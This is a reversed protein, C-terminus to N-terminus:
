FVTVGPALQQVLKIRSELETAEAQIRRQIELLRMECETKYKVSGSHEGIAGQLQHLVVQRDLSLQKIRDDLSKLEDQLTSVVTSKAEASFQAADREEKAADFETKAFDISRKLSGIGRAVQEARSADDPRGACKSLIEHRMQPNLPGLTATVSTMNMTDVSTSFNPPPVHLQYPSNTNIQNNYMSSTSPNYNGAATQFAMMETHASRVLTLAAEDFQTVEINSTCLPCQPCVQDGSNQNNNNSLMQQNYFQRVCPRCVTHNCPILKVPLRLSNLITSPASSNDDFMMQCKPCHIDQAFKSSNYQM